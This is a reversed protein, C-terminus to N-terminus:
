SLHSELIQNSAIEVLDKKPLSANLITVDVDGAQPVDQSYMGEYQGYLKALAVPLRDDYRGSEKRRTRARSLVDKFPLALM